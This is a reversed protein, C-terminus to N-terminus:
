KAPAPNPEGIFEIITGRAVVRKSSYFYGVMSTSIASTINVIAQSGTLNAKEYMDMIANEKLSKKSLGGIGFVYVQRSYGYAEGVIRFNNQNLQVETFAPYNQVPAQNMGCGTLLVATMVLVAFLNFKKM